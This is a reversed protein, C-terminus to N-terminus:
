VFVGPETEEVCDNDVKNFGPDCKAKFYDYIVELIGASNDYTELEGDDKIKECAKNTFNFTFGENCKKICNVGDESLDFGEPCNTVRCLVGDDKEPDLTSCLSPIPPEPEEPPDVRRKKAYIRVKPFPKRTYTAKQCSVGIDQTPNFMAYGRWEDRDGPCNQDLLGLTKRTYGPDVDKKYCLGGIDSKSDDCQLTHPALVESRKTYSRTCLLGERTYGDRCKDYCLGDRNEKNGPCYWRDWLPVEIKGSGSCETRLNWLYCNGFIDKDGACWTNCRPDSWLSTGDDRCNAIWGYDGCGRKEPITGVGGGYVDECRVGTDTFGDRCGEWAVGALLSTAWDPKYYAFAGDKTMGPPATDPITGTDMLIRKTLHTSTESLGNFGGNPYASGNATCLFAECTFGDKAPEYCLGNQDFTGEQCGTSFAIFPMVISLIDGFGPLAELAIRAGEPLTDWDWDNPDDKDFFVGGAALGVTLSLAIVSLASLVVGIGTSNQANIKAVMVAIKTALKKGAMIAIQKTTQKAAIRGARKVLAEGVEQSAKKLAFKKTAERAARKAMAEAVEKETKKAMAEAFKKATKEAAEKAAAEAAEKAAQKALAKAAVRDAVKMVKRGLFDYIEGAIVSEGMYLFSDGLTSGTLSGCNPDKLRCENNEFVFCDDGCPNGTPLCEKGDASVIFGEGCGGSPDTSICDKGDDSIKYGEGCPNFPECTKGDKGLVFGDGCPNSLDKCETGDESLVYGEPCTPEGEGGTDGEGEYGGGPFGQGTDSGQNLFSLNDKNTYLYYGTALAAGLLLTNNM